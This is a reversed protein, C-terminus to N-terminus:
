STTVLEQSAVNGPLTGVHHAYRAAGIEVTMDPNVDKRGLLLKVVEVHRHQAALWLPTRGYTGIRDPRVDGRGLLLKVIDDHGDRAALWLPTRGNNDPKDASVGEQGLLLDVVGGHGKGAAWALPTQGYSDPKDLNVRKRRLLPNIAQQTEKWRPGVGRPGDFPRGLFLRVVGEHGGGAAWSLATRGYQTDSMDPQTHKQRLLLEVVEERGYKTAWM